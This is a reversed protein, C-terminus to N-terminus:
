LIAEEYCSQECLFNVLWFYRKDNSPWKLINRRQFEDKITDNESHIHIEHFPNVLPLKMRTRLM